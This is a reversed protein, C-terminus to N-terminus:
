GFGPPTKSPGAARSPLAFGATAATTATRGLRGAQSASQGASDKKALAGTAEAYDFDARVRKQGFLDQFAVPANDYVTPGIATEKSKCRRQESESALVSRSVCCRIMEGRVGLRTIAMIGHELGIQVGLGAVDIKEEKLIEIARDFSSRQAAACLMAYKSTDADDTNHATGEVFVGHICDGIFRIKRGGFDKHLVADMESRLVHLVRVVDKAKDDDDIRGSVYATFGDIDVYLSTAEQRRSNGPTLEELNLNEFPPTHRSFEFKAIPNKALDAEWDKVVEDKTVELAAKKQSEEIQATTLATQDVDDVKTWTVAGRAKNTLYIGTKSGGGSRKAAHNAPDGLFLPERNGRRGNNVALAEGTDIGVRVKAAPLPDDEDAGTEALVDIILQATAVARHVRKAEDDYPKVFVAHLRQNHFDVQIADVDLLINRVARYHQNLFRLTRRHVTVGEVDTTYLMEKLNLIDVYLHVGDVRYAVGNGLDTLSTDRVYDYIAVNKVQALSKRIRDSARDKDWTKSAM